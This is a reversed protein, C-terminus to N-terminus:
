NGDYNVDEMSPSILIKPAAITKSSSTSSSTSLKARKVFPSTQSNNDLLENQYKINYGNNMYFPKDYSMRVLLNKASILPSDCEDNTSTEHQKINHQPLPTLPPITSLILPTPLIAKEYIDDKTDGNQKNHNPSTASYYSSASEYNSDTFNDNDSSKNMNNNNNNEQSLNFQTILELLHKQEEENGNLKPCKYPMQILEKHNSEEIDLIFSSATDDFNEVGACYHNEEQEHVISANELSGTFVKKCLGSDAKNCFSSKQDNKKNMKYDIADNNLKKMDNHSHVSSFSSISSVTKSFKLLQSNLYVTTEKFSPRKNANQNWCQLM